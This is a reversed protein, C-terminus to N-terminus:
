IAEGRLVAAGLIMAENDRTLEIAPWGACEARLIRRGNEVFLRRVLAGSDPGHGRVAVLRGDAAAEDPDIFVYEGARLLPAMADDAVREVFTEPGGYM